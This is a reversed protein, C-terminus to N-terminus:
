FITSFFGTVNVCCSFYTVCSNQQNQGMMGCSKGWKTPIAQKLKEVFKRRDNRRNNWANSTMILCTYKNSQNISQNISQNSIQIDLIESQKDPHSLKGDSRFVHLSTWFKCVNINETKRRFVRPSQLRQGSTSVFTSLWCETLFTSSKALFHFIGM